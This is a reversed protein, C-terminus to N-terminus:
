QISVAAQRDPPGPPRWSHPSGTRPEALRGRLHRRDLHDAGGDEQTIVGREDFGPRRFPDDGYRITATPTPSGATLVVPLLPMLSPSNWFAAELRWVAAPQLAGHISRRRSRRHVGCGM